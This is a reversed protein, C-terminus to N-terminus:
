RERGNKNKTPVFINHFDIHQFTDEFSKRRRERRRMKKPNKFDSLDMRKKKESNVRLQYLILTTTSINFHIKSHNAENKKKKSTEREKTKNEFDILNM